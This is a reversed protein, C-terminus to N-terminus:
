NKANREGKQAAYAAYFMNAFERISLSETVLKAGVERLCKNAFEPTMSYNLGETLEACVFKYANFAEQKPTMKIEKISFMANM